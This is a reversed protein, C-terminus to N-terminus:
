DWTLISSLLEDPKAEDKTGGYDIFLVSILYGKDPFYYLFPDGPSETSTRDENHYIQAHRKICPENAIMTEKQETLDGLILVEPITSPDNWLSYGYRYFNFYAEDCIDSLKSMDDIEGIYFVDITVDALAWGGDPNEKLLDIIAYIPDSMRNYLRYDAWSLKISLDDLHLDYDGVIRYLDSGDPAYSKYLTLVPPAESVLTYSATKNSGDTTTATITVTGAGIVTVKGKEDVTAISLDSSEFSVVKNSADEPQIIIDQSYKDGVQVKRKKEKFAISKVPIIVTVEIDSSIETGDSLTTSCTIVTKGENVGRISSNNVTAITKDATDWIFKGAKVGDLLDIVEAKIKTSGGKGVTISEQDFIIKTKLRSKQEAVVALRLDELEEDTANQLNLANIDIESIATTCTLILIFVLLLSFVKKM